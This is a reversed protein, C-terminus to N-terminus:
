GAKTLTFSTTGDIPGDGCVPVGNSSDSHTGTLTNPDWRWHSEGPPSRDKCFIADVDAAWQGDVLNAQWSGTTHAGTIKLCDPGCPTVFWTSGDSVNYPGSMTPPDGWAASAAGIATGAFMAAAAIARTVIM